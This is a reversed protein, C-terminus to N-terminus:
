QETKKTKDLFKKIDEEDWRVLRGIRIPRPLHGAKHLRYVSHAEIHCYDAVQKATWLM